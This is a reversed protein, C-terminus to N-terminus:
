LGSYCQVLITGRHDGHKGVADRRWLYDTDAKVWIPFQPWWKYNTIFVVGYMTENVQGRDGKRIAERCRRHRYAYQM